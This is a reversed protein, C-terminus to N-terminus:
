RPGTVNGGVVIRSPTKAQAPRGEQSSAAARPGARRWYYRRACARLAAPWVAPFAPRGVARVPSPPPLEEEKIDQINKPVTKAGDFRGADFQRPIVKVIKVPAVAPPPPPPPAATSAGGPVAALTAKPLDTFWIM